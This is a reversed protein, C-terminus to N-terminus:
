MASLPPAKEDNDVQGAQKAALENKQSRPKPCIIELTDILLKNIGKLLKDSTKGYMDRYLNIMIIIQERPDQAKTDDNLSDITNKAAQYHTVWWGETYKELVGIADKKFNCLMAKQGPKFPFRSLAAQLNSIRLRDDNTYLDRKLLSVLPNATMEVVVDYIEQLFEAHEKSVEVQLVVTNADKEIISTKGALHHGQHNPCLRERAMLLAASTYAYLRTPNKKNKMKDNLRLVELLHEETDENAWIKKITEEADSKYAANGVHSFLSKKEYIYKNIEATADERFNSLSAKQSPTLHHTTIAAALTSIKVDDNSEINLKLKDVLPNAMMDNAVDAIDRLFEEHERDVEISYVLNDDVQKISMDSNIQEGAKVSADPETVDPIAIIEEAVVFPEMVESVDVAAEETDILSEDSVRLEEVVAEVPKAAITVTASEEDKHAVVHLVVPEAPKETVITEEVTEATISVVPEKVVPVVPKETVVTEEVTEATISVVPQKVVPAAPKVEAAKVVVPEVKKATVPSVATRVPKAPASGITAARPLKITGTQIGSKAKGLPPMQAPASQRMDNAPNKDLKRILQNLVEVARLYYLSVEMKSLARKTWKIFLKDEEDAHEFKGDERRFAVKARSHEHGTVAKIDDLEQNTFPRLGSAVKLEKDFKTLGDSKNFDLKKLEKTEKNVYFLDDGRRVYAVKPKLFFLDSMDFEGEPSTMVVLHALKPGHHQTLSTILKLQKESLAETSSVDFQTLKERSIKIETNIKEDLNVYYLRDSYRIYNANYKKLPIKGLNEPLPPLTSLVRHCPRPESIKDATKKYIGFLWLSADKWLDKTQETIEINHVDTVLKKLERIIRPVQSNLTMLYGLKYAYNLLLVRHTEGFICLADDIVALTKQIKLIHDQNGAAQAQALEKKYAADLRLFIRLVVAFSEKTDLLSIALSGDGKGQKIHLKVADHTKGIDGDELYYTIREQDLRKKEIAEEADARSQVM